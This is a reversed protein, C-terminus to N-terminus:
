KFVHIASDGSPPPPVLEVTYITTIQKIKSFNNRISDPDDFSVELDVKTGQDSTNPVLNVELSEPEM